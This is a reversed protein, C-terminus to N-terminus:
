RAGGRPGGWGMGDPLARACAPDGPGRWPRAMAEGLAGGGRMPVCRREVPPEAVTAHRGLTDTYPDM